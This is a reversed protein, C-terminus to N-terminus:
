LNRSTDVLAKQGLKLKVVEDVVERSRFKPVVLRNEVANKETVIDLDLVLDAITLTVERLQPPEGLQTCHVLGLGDTRLLYSKIANLLEVYRHYKGTRELPNMSDIIINRQIGSREDAEEIARNVNRLANGRGVTTIVYEVGDDLVYELEDEIADRRRLTTIYLTPRERMMSYFLSAAQSAPPATLSVVTGPRPGGDLHEDLAELGTTLRRNAGEVGM